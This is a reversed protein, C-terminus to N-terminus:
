GARLRLVFMGDTGEDQPLLLDGRGHARWPAGLHGLPELRPQADALWADIGLTEAATITCVSYALTGGPVLLDAAASVLSRQLPVLRDV